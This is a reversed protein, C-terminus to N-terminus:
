ISPDADQMIVDISGQIGALQGAILSHTVPDNQALYALLDTEVPDTAEAMELMWNWAESTRLYWGADLANLFFGDDSLNLGDLASLYGEMEGSFNLPDFAIYADIIDRDAM